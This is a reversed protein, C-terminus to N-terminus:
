GQSTPLPGSAPLHWSVPAAESAPEQAAPPRSSPRPGLGPPRRQGAAARRRPLPTPAPLSCLGPPPPAPLRPSGPKTLVPTKRPLPALGGPSAAAFGRHAGRCGLEMGPARLRENRRGAEAAEDRWGPAAAGPAPTPAYHAAALTYKRTGEKKTRSTPAPAANVPGPESGLPVPSAALRPEPQAASCSFGLRRGPVGWM